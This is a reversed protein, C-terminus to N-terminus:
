WFDDITHLMCRMADRAWQSGLADCRWPRGDDPMAMMHFRAYHGIFRMADCRRGIPIAQYRRDCNSYLFTESRGGSCSALWWPARAVRAAWAAWAARASNGLGGLSGGRRGLRGLQGLRAAQATWVTRASLAVLGGTGGLCDVSVSRAVGAAWIAALSPILREFLFDAFM